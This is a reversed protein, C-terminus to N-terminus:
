VIRVKKQLYERAYESDRNIQEKLQEVNAFKRDGRIYAYFSVIIEQGYLDGAFDFLCTEVTRKTGEITPNKGINTVSGYTKDGVQTRTVYVGDPPILKRAPPKLNATPFGITRGIKKGHEVMGKIFYPKDLLRNAETFNADEICQRTRTSSVRLDCDIVNPIKIVEAGITNGFQKLSAYTGLRNKGFCYNEGVVLVKFNTTQYLMKMFEEHHMEAFETTFPYEVLVDIGLKEITYHKENESLITYFNDKKNVVIVPHPAFSFVVSTLGEQDAYEKVTKILQQHGIHIGDFNGLTVATPEKITFDTTKIIKM